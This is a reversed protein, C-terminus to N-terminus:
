YIIKIHLNELIDLAKQHLIQNNSAVLSAKIFIETNPQASKTIVANSLLCINTIIGCLEISDYKNALLYEMLKCSGFGGKDFTLCKDSYSKLADTIEWGKTNKIAHEIPLNIGEVTQLYDADHADRLFIVTQKNSLYFEIREKLLPEILRAEEFGMVGDVFDKQFDVVILLKNM